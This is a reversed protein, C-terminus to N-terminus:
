PSRREPSPQTCAERCVGAQLGPAEIVADCVTVPVTDGSGSRAQDILLTVRQTYRGCKLSTPSGTHCCDLCLVVQLLLALTLLEARSM